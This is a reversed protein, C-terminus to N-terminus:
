SIFELDILYPDAQSGDGGIVDVDKSLSIVPRVGASRSVYFNDYITGEYMYINNGTFVRGKADIVGNEVSRGSLYKPSMTYYVNGANRFSSGMIVAEESTLLGVPYQLDAVNNNISFSDTINECKLSNLQHNALFDLSASSGRGVISNEFFADDIRRDNCYTVYEVYNGNKEDKLINQKYWVDIAKKITSDKQNVTNSFLMKNVAEEVTLGGTIEIYLLGTLNTTSGNTRYISSIKECQGSNNWCTYRHTDINSIETSSVTGRMYVSDTDDLIYMGNEYHFSSSFKINVSADWYSYGTDTANNVYRPNICVDDM